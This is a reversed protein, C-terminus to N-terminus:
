KSAGGPATAVPAPAAPPAPSPPSASVTVPTVLVGSVNGKIALKQKKSTTGRAARTAKAKATAVVRKEATLPAVVKRPALGFDGLQTADSYTVRLYSTFGRVLPAVNEQTTHLAAVGDHLSTRAADVPGFADLLGQFAQILSAATHTAGGFTVQGNSFHKQAGAILAQVRNQVTAKDNFMSM